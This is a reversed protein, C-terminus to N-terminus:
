KPLFLQLKHRHCLLLQTGVLLHYALSSGNDDFSGYVIDGTLIILDPHTQAIISRIHDGCQADFNEPSWANIEDIRIRDPRRRQSSDIIQTDTLQLIKIPTNERDASLRVVFDCGAFTNTEKGKIIDYGM